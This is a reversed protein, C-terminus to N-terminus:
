LNEQSVNRLGDLWGKSNPVRVSSLCCNAGGSGGAQDNDLAVEAVVRGDGKGRLVVEPELGAIRGRVSAVDQALSVQSFTTASHFSFSSFLVPPTFQFIRPWRM